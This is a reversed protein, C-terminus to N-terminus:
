TNFRYINEEHLKYNDPFDYKNVIQDLNLAGEFKSVKIELNDQDIM